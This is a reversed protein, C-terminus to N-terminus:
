ILMPLINCDTHRVKTLVQVSVFINNSSQSCSEQNPADQIWTQCRRCPWTWISQLPAICGWFQLNSPATKAETRISLFSFLLLIYFLTRPDNIILFFAGDVAIGVEVRHEWQSGEIHHHGDGVPEVIFTGVKFGEETPAPGDEPDFHNGAPYTYQYVQPRQHGGEATGRALKRHSSVVWRPEAARSSSLSIRQSQAWSNLWWSTKKNTQKWGMIPM